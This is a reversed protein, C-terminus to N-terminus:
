VQLANSSIINRLCISFSRAFTNYYVVMMEQTVSMYYFLVTTAISLLVMVITSFNRKGKEKIKKFFVFVLPFILDFQILISIYWLHTFPSNANRTFYDANANLQWFNNYGLLVSITETKINLWMINPLIKAIIVTICSVILLPLYLKKIRKEYYKKISFSEQKLASINTLYGSLAFFTCVALFGGKIINLHYLLVMICSVNRIIDLNKNYKKKEKM